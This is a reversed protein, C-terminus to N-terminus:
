KLWIKKLEQNIKQIQSYTLEFKLPQQMLMKKPKIPAFFDEVSLVKAGLASVFFRIEKDDSVVMVNKPNAIEEIIRRIQNDASDNKTFIIELNEREAKLPAKPPYGDFVLIIKNKLSGCLRKTNILFILNQCSNLKKAFRSFLRHNILNYGDLIYILSM